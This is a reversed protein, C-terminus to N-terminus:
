KTYVKMTEKKDTKDKRISAMVKKYDDKTDADGGTNMDSDNEDKKSAKKKDKKKGGNAELEDKEKKVEALEVKDDNLYDEDSFDKAYDNDKLEEKRTAVIEADKQDQIAKTVKEDDLLDEDTFDKAFKNDKLQVKTKGIKEANERVAEIESDKAELSTELEEVKAELEVIKAQAKELDSKKEDDKVKKEKRIEAVKSEDLLDEDSIEKAFDGLEARIEEIKTKQEETVKKNGGQNKEKKIQKALIDEEKAWVYDRIIAHAHKKTAQVQGDVIKHEHKEVGDGFTGVTIGKGDLDEKTAHFHQDKNTTVYYYFTEDEKKDKSLIEDCTKTIQSAFVLEKDSYQSVRNKVAKAYEFIKASPCAPAESMLHGCGTFTIDNLRVTGDALHEQSDSESLLEFSISLEGEKALEISQAYEDPYVGKYFSYLIEIEDNENLTADLIAGCILGQIHSFNVQAGILSPLAKEVAERGLRISNLNPKEIEAYISRFFGLHESPFQIDRKKTIDEIERSDEASVVNKSIYKIKEKGM